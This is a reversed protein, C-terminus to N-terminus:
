TPDIMGKLKDTIMTFENQSVTGLKNFLRKKSFVKMQLLMAVSNVGVKTNKDVYVINHFYDNDQKESTTTPIGIFLDSTLQRIVIVPRLFDKGKGYEEHGINQGIKTWFIDRPKITLQVKSSHTFKKVENWEDFQNM